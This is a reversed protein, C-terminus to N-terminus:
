FSFAESYPAKHIPLFVNDKLRQKPFTRNWMCYGGKEVPCINWSGRPSASGCVTGFQMRAINEGICVCRHYLQDILCLLLHGIVVSLLVSCNYCYVTVSTIQIHDRKGKKQKHDQSIIFCSRSSIFGHPSRCLRTLRALDSSVRHCM